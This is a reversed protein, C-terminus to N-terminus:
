SLHTVGGVQPAVASVNFVREPVYSYYRKLNICIEFAVGSGWCHGLISLPAGELLGALSM